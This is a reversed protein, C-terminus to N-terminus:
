CDSSDAVGRSVAHSLIVEDYLGPEGLARRDMAAEYEDLSVPTLSLKTLLSTDGPRAAEGAERRREAEAHAYRLAPSPM